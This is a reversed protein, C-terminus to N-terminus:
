TPILPLRQRTNEVPHYYQIATEGRRWCFYVSQGDRAGFFDVWGKEINRLICGLRRIEEIEKELQLISEDLDRAESDLADQANEDRGAETLLEHLFFHDHLKEYDQKKAALKAFIMELRPVLANAEELSFIRKAANM